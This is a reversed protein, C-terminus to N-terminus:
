DNSHAVSDRPQSRLGRWDVHYKNEATFYGTYTGEGEIGALKGTGDVIVYNGKMTTKPQGGQMNTTVVGDIQVVQQDAGRKFIVYGQQPGNGQRLDAIEYATAAFGDIPGDPNSSKGSSEAQLLVHGAQDPIPLAARKTYTAEFSGVDKIKEAMATTTVLGAAALTTLVVLSRSIKRLM